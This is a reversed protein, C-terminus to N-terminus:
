DLLQRNARLFHTGIKMRSPESWMHSTESWLPSVDPYSRVLSLFRNQLERDEALCTFASHLRQHMEVVAESIEEPTNEVIKLGLTDYLEKHQPDKLTLFGLRLELIERFTLFRKRQESYYKKTIFIGDTCRHGLFHAMPFVNVMVVPKRFIMPLGIMGSNQGVFFLCRAALFVDMFDSQCQTAYDIVRPNSCTLPEKVYKGMRVAFYGLDALKEAAPVYNGISVDRLDQWNWGGHIAVNTLRTRDLYASDRGHFCVFPVAPEIGLERLESLGRVEEAETFTLHAPFRHMLDYQDYSQSLTAAIFDNSGRPLLRNLHDLVRAPEWVRIVRGFMTSLQQNSIAERRSIPHRTMYGDRDYHYWLDLSGHPQMGADRECLNLETDLTFIGLRTSWLRGFRIHVFPKLILLVVRVLVALPLLGIRLVWRLIRRARRRATVRWAPVTARPLADDNNSLVAPSHGPTVHGVLLRTVWGKVTAM